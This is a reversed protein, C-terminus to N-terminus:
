GDTAQQAKAYAFQLFDSVGVSTFVAAALRTFRPAFVLGGAFTTSTWVALCFPCTLLEGFAHRLHSDERVEEHLEGAGQPGEYTTFPARLPSTVADKTIIRTLKHTAMSLLAVDWPRIEQPLERGTARGLATLGAVATGYSAMLALYGSLPRNEGPAYAAAKETLSRVVRVKPAAPSHTTM